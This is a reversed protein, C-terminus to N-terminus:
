TEVGAHEEKIRYAFVTGIELVVQILDAILTDLGSEIEFPYVIPATKDIGIYEDNM